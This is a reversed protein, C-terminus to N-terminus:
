REGAPTSTGPTPTSSRIITRAMTQNMRRPTANRSTAIARAPRPARTGPSSRVSHVSEEDWEDEDGHDTAEPEAEDDADDGAAGLGMGVHPRLAVVSRRDTVHTVLDWELADAQGIGPEDGTGILDRAALKEEQVVAASRAVAEPALPSDDTGVEVGALQRPRLEPAVNPGTRLPHRGEDLPDEAIVIEVRDEGEELRDSLAYGRRGTFGCQSGLWMPGVACPSSISVSRVLSRVASAIVPRTTVAHLPAAVGAGVSAGVSAGVEGGVAAGVVMGLMLSSGPWSSPSITKSAAKAVIVTSPSSESQLAISPAVTVKSCIRRSSRGGATAASILNPGRSGTSTVNLTALSALFM